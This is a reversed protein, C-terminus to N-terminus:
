WTNKPGMYVFRYDDSKVCNVYYENLWDSAFFVPVDYFSDLTNLRLHWNKLYDLRDKHSESDEFYNLYHALTTDYTEHCNYYRKLCNYVTVKLSGYRERLYNYNIKREKHWLKHSEWNNAINKIICPKNLVIYDQFFDHYNLCKGDLVTIRDNFNNYNTQLLQKYYNNIEFLM